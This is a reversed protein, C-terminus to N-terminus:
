DAIGEREPLFLYIGGAIATLAALVFFAEAFLARDAMAGVATSGFAGLTFFGTRILGWATGRVDVPLVSVIYANSVPGVSLRLGLVVSVLALPALGSLYPLAVLPPVSLFSVAALVRPHGYRDAL